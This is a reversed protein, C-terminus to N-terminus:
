AGSNVDAVAAAPAAALRLLLSQIQVLSRQGSVTVAAFQMRVPAHRLSIISIVDIQIM